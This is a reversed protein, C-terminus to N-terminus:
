SESGQKGFAVLQSIWSSTECVEGWSRRLRRESLLREIMTAEDM